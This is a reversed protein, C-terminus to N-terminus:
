RLRAKPLKGKAQLEVAAALAQFVQQV